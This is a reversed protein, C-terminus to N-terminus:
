NSVLRIGRGELQRRIVERYFANNASTLSDQADSHRQSPSGYQTVEVTQRRPAPISVDMALVCRSDTLRYLLLTGALAGGVFTHEDTIVADSAIDPQLILLYRAERLIRLAADIGAVSYNSAAASTPAVAVEDLVSTYLRPGRAANTAGCIRALDDAMVADTNTEPNPHGIGMAVYAMGPLILAEDMPGVLAPRNEHARIDRWVRCYRARTSEILPTAKTLTAEPTRRFVFVATMALAAAVIAGAIIGLKRSARKTAKAVVNEDAPETVM